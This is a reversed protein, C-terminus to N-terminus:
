ELSLESSCQRWYNHSVTVRPFLWARRCQLQNYRMQFGRPLRQPSTSQHLLLQIGPINLILASYRDRHVRCNNLRLAHVDTISDIIFPNPSAWIGPNTVVRIHTICAGIALRCELLVQYSSRNHAWVLWKTTQCKLSSISSLNLYGLWASVLIISQRMCSHWGSIVDIPWENYEYSEAIQNVCM